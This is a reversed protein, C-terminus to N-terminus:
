EQEFIIEVDYKKALEKFEALKSSLQNTKPVELKHNGKLV